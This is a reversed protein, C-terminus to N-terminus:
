FGNRNWIRHYIYMCACSVDIAARGVCCVLFSLSPLLCKLIVRYGTSAM